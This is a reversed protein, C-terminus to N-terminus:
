KPISDASYTITIRWSEKFRAPMPAEESEYEFAGSVTKEFFARLNKTKTEGPRDPSPIALPVDLYTEGLLAMARLINRLDGVFQRAVGASVVDATFTVTEYAFPDGDGKEGGATFGSLWLDLHANTNTAAQPQEIVQIGRDRLAQVLADIVIV